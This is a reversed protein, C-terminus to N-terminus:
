CRSCRRISPLRNRSTSSSPTSVTRFSRRGSRLLPRGPTFTPRAYDALERGAAVYTSDFIFESAELCAADPQTFLLDDRRKGLCPRHM